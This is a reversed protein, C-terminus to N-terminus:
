GRDHAEGTGCSRFLWAPRRQDHYGDNKGKELEDAIRTITDVLSRASTDSFLHGGAVAEIYEQQIPSLKAYENMTQHALFIATGTHAPVRWGVRYPLTKPIYAVGSARITDFCEDDEYIRITDLFEDDAYLEILAFGFPVAWISFTDYDSDLVVHDLNPHMPAMIIEQGVVRV